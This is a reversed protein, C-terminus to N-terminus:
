KNYIYGDIYKIYGVDSLSKLIEMGTRRSSTHEMTFHSILRNADIAKGKNQKFFTSIAQKMWEVKELRSKTTGM